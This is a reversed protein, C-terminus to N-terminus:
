YGGIFNWLKNVDITKFNYTGQKSNEKIFELLEIKNIWNKYPEGVTWFPIAGIQALMYDGMEEKGNEILKEAVKRYLRNLNLNDQILIKLEEEQKNYLKLFDELAVTLKVNPYECAESHNYEIENKIIEIIEQEIM